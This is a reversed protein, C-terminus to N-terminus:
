LEAYKSKILATVRSNPVSVPRVGAAPPAHLVCCALGVTAVDAHVLYVETESGGLDHM